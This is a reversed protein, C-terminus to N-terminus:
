ESASSSASDPQPKPKPPTPTRWMLHRRVRPSYMRPSRPRRKPTQRIAVALRMGDELGLAHRFEAVAPRLVFYRYVIHSVLKYLLWLYTSIMITWAFSTFKRDLLADCQLAQTPSDLWVTASIGTLQACADAPNVGGWFGYGGLTPGHFYLGKLPLIITLTVLSALMRFLGSAAARAGAPLARAATTNVNAELAFMTDAFCTPFEKNGFCLTAHVVFSSAPPRAAGGGNEHNGGFTFLSSTNNVVM